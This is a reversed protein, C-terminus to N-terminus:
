VIPNSISLVLCIQFVCESIGDNMIWMIIISQLDIPDILLIMVDDHDDYHYHTRWIVIDTIYGVPVIIGVQKYRMRFPKIYDSQGMEETTVDTIKDM